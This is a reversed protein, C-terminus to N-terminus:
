ANLARNMREIAEDVEATSKYGMTVADVAGLGMVFNLSKQRQEGDTFQGEGVLKMGLVGTGQAHIEKARAAVQQVDGLEATDQQQAATDMRAGTHNIRVLAVDLWKCGSAPNLARLGHISVGNALVVKKSKFEDLADQTAQTDAPWTPSSMAHMLVIDFYETNIATRAQDIRAQLTAGNRAPGVAFKTMLRYSDRPLGKLAAGLMAHIGSYGESTDFFRIGQDYAHRVMRTFDDQGLERQVRGSFTGTGLALRTVKVGSNGLTVWDTASRKQGWAPIAGGAGALLTGALGTRFFDRRTVHAM